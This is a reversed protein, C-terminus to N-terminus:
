LENSMEINLIVVEGSHLTLQKMQTVFGPASVVITHQGARLKIEFVGNKDITASVNLAPVFVRAMLPDGSRASKIIGRVTGPQDAGVPVLSITLDAGAAATRAITKTFPKYGPASFVLQLLGTSAPIPWSAFTGDTNTAINASFGQVKAIANGVPQRTVEDIVKGSVMFTPAGAGAVGVQGRPTAPTDPALLLDVGVASAGLAVLAAGVIFGLNARSASENAGRYAEDVEIQSLDGAKAAERQSNADRGFYAGAGLALTGAGAVILGGVRLWSAGGERSASADVSLPLDPSLAGAKPAGGVTPPPAATVPGADVKTLAPAGAGVKSSSAVSASNASQRPAADPYLGRVAPALVVKDDRAAFSAEARRAVTGKSVDILLFSLEAAADRMVVQTLLVETASVSRGLGAICSLDNGCRVLAASPNGKTAKHLRSGTVLTVGFDTLSAEVATQAKALLAKDVKGRAVLPFVAVTPTVPTVGVALTLLCAFVSASM